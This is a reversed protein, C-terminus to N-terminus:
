PRRQPTEARPGHHLGKKPAAPASTKSTAADEVVDDQLSDCLTKSNPNHPFSARREFEPHSSKGIPQVVTNEKLAQGGDERLEYRLFWYLRGSGTNYFLPDNEDYDALFQKLRLPNERLRDDGEGLPKVLFIGHPPVGLYDYLALGRLTTANESKLEQFVKEWRAHLAPSTKKFRDMFASWRTESVECKWLFSLVLKKETSWRDPFTTKLRSALANAGRSALIEGTRTNPMTAAVDRATNGGWYPYVSNGGKKAFFPQFNPQQQLRVLHPASPQVQDDQEGLFGQWAKRSKNYSGWIYVFPHGHCSKCDTSPQLNSHSTGDVALQYPLLKGNEHVVLEVSNGKSNLAAIVEGKRYLALLREPQSSASSFAATFDDKVKTALESAFTEASNTSLPLTKLVEPLTTTPVVKREGADGCLCYPFSILCLFVVREFHTKM